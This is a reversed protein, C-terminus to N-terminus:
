AVADQVLADLDLASVDIQGTVLKPLLADRMQVLRARERELKAAYDFLPTAAQSFTRQLGRPPLLIAFERLLRLNVHPVGATMAQAVFRQTADASCLQSYMFVPAARCEDVTVKMQSQSLVYLDFRSDAPIHGVQGLTGRQTVVLDGRRAWASRLEEAKAEAVFVFDSEDFGGGVRLNAGRIVPVGAPQYDKRGLKSGFPGSSISNRETSAVSAINDVDWNQPIPGLGSDVLPVDGHGPYHFKVFWEHYVARVMEELVEVRWRNNEILEDFAQAVHAIAKQAALGPVRVPLTHLQNRNLGPVAAAGDYQSLNMSRLLAAVFQPDNGKFDRVYLSTNLPWFDETVYFVQGLTGYRGTVVGPAKAKVENHRGTPGSSSIVPVTGAGRSGRPLDYGRKLECVDGLTVERWESM